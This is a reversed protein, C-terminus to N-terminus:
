MYVDIHLIMRFIVRIYQLGSFTVFAHVLYIMSFLPFTYMYLMCVIPLKKILHAEDIVFAVVNGPLCLETVDGELCRRM